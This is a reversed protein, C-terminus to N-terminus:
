YKISVSQLSQLVACYWWNFSHFDVKQILKIEVHWIEVLTCLFNCGVTQIKHLHLFFSATDTTETAYGTNWWKQCFYQGTFSFSKAFRFDTEQWWLEWQFRQLIVNDMLWINENPKLQYCKGLTLHHSWEMKCNYRSKHM